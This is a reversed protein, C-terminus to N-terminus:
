LLKGDKQFKNNLNKEKDIVNIKRERKRYKKM